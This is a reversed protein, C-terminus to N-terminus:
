FVNRDQNVLRQCDRLLFGKRHLRKYLFDAYRKNHRSTRAHHVELDYAGVLGDSKMAEEIQSERGVLIPSGYGGNKFALAARVVREEEGEAFVVRRPNAHVSGFTAQLVASTPDIRAGLSRAYGNFDTIQKRAVGSEMAAKAVAPPVASI